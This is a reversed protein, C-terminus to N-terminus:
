GLHMHEAKGVLAPLPAGDPLTYLHNYPLGLKADDIWADRDTVQHYPWGKAGMRSAHPAYGMVFGIKFLGAPNKHDGGKKAPRVSRRISGAAGHWAVWALCCRGRSATRRGNGPLTATTFNYRAKPHLPM